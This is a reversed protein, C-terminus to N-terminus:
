RARTSTRAPGLSFNGIVAVNWNPSGTCTRPGAALAPQSSITGGGPDNLQIGSRMTSWIAGCVNSTFPASSIGNCTPPEPKENGKSTLALTLTFRPMCSNTRPSFTTWSCAVQHGTAGTGPSDRYMKASAMVAGATALALTAGPFEAPVVALDTGFSHSAPM